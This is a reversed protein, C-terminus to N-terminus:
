QASTATDAPLESLTREAVKRQKEFRRKLRDLLKAQREPQGAYHDHQLLKQVWDLNTQVDAPIREGDHRVANVPCVEHCIGCRICANDDIEAARNTMSIADAPCQRVCLQCGACLSENIWPM